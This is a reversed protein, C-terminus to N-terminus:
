SLRVNVQAECYILQGLLEFVGLYHGRCLTTM